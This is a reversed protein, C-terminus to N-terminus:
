PRTINELGLPISSWLSTMVNVCVVGTSKYHLLIGKVGPEKVTSLVTLNVVIVLSMIEPLM